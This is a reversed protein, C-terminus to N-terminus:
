YVPYVAFFIGALRASFFPFGLRVFFLSLICSIYTSQFTKEFDFCDYLIVKGLKGSNRRLQNCSLRNLKGCMTRTIDASFSPVKPTLVVYTYPLNVRRGQYDRPVPKYAASLLLYFTVQLTIRNLFCLRNYLPPLLLFRLLSPAFSCHLSITGGTCSPFYYIDELNFAHSTNSDLQLFVLSLKLSRSMSHSCSGVPSHKGVAQDLKGLVGSTNKCSSLKTICHM